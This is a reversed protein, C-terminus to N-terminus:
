STVRKIAACLKPGDFPKVIWGTAGSERGVRKVDDGTETTLIIIPVFKTDDRERLARTLELGNMRPMNLDTIVADPHFCELRGLADLGDEAIDVLYGDARLTRAVLDRMTRSDDVVLINM